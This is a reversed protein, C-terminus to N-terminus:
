PGTLAGDAGTPDGPTSALRADARLMEAIAGLAAETESALERLLNARLALVLSAGAPPPDGAHALIDAKGVHAAYVRLTTPLIALFAVPDAAAAERMRQAADELGDLDERMSTLVRGHREELAKLAAWAGASDVPSM